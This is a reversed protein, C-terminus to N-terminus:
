LKKENDYVRLFFDNFSHLSKGDFPNRHFVQMSIDIKVYCLTPGASWLIYTGVSFEVAKCWNEKQHPLLLSRLLCMKQPMHSMLYSQTDKIVPWLIIMEYSAAKKSMHKERYEILYCYPKRDDHLAMGNSYLQTSSVSLICEVHHVSHTKMAIM